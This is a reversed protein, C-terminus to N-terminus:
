LNEQQLKNIEEKSIFANVSTLDKSLINEFELMYGSEYINKGNVSFLGYKSLASQANDSLLFNAFLKAYYERADSGSDVVSIYQVLDSFEGLFTYRCSSLSGNIERNKCRALDRATGILSVSKKAIFNNYAGYTSDFEILDFVNFNVNNEKLALMPNILSKTAISLGKVEKNNYKTSLTYNSIDSSELGSLLNEHSILCYGSLIYPYALLKEQREGYNILDKRVNGNDELEELFGALYEGVGVGFSYLDPLENKRLNLALEDPTLTKVVLFCNPYRKNFLSAQRELYKSRSNTGGEFTEIHYITLITKSSNSLNFFENLNLTYGEVNFIFIPCIIIFLFCLICFTFKLM